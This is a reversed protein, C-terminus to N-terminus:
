RGTRVINRFQDEIRITENEAEAVRERLDKLALHKLSLSGEIEEIHRKMNEMLDQCLRQKTQGKEIEIDFDEANAQLEM